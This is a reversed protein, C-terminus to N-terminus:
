RLSDKDKGYVEIYDVYSVSKEGTNDSDNMIGIGGISPPMRGFAKEYDDLINVRETLWKGANSAESQLIIFRVKGTYASTIIREEHKRSEWIYVLSSHPPYRGYILKVANYLIIDFLGAKEPDYEFMVYIRLPYDDGEKTGAYGKEYVNNVMWRWQVEPYLYVNFKRKYIIGSASADSQAKLYTEGHSNEIEYITHKKVNRFHISEWNNLDNFDERFLVEGSVCPILAFLAILIASLIKRIM